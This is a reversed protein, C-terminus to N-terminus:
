INGINETTAGQWGPADGSETRRHLQVVPQQCGMTFGQNRPAAPSQASGSYAPHPLWDDEDRPRAAFNAVAQDCPEGRAAAGDDREVERREIRRQGALDLALEESRNEIGAEELADEGLEFDIQDKM